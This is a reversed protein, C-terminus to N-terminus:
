KGTRLLARATKRGLGSSTGTVVVLKKDGFKETAAREQMADGLTPLKWHSTGVNLAAGGCVAALLLIQRMSTMACRSSATEPQDRKNLDQSKIDNLRRFVLPSVHRYTHKSFVLLTQECCLSSGELQLSLSFLQETRAARTDFRGHTGRAALRFAM